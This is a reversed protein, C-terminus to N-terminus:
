VGVFLVFYHRIIKREYILNVPKISWSSSAAVYRLAIM